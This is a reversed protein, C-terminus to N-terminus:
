QNVREQEPEDARERDFRADAHGDPWEMHGVKGKKLGMAANEETKSSSSQEQVAYKHLWGAENLWAICRWYTATRHIHLAHMVTGLTHKVITCRLYLVHGYSLHLVLRLVLRLAM